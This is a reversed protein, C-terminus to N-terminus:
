PQYCQLTCRSLREFPTEELVKHSSQTIAIAPPEVQVLTHVLAPGRPIGVQFSGSYGANNIWVDVQGLIGAAVSSLRAVSGPSTVDAALGHVTVGPGVEERLSAAAQRAGAATRSTIVM